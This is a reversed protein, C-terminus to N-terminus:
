RHEPFGQNPFVSNILYMLIAIYTWSSSPVVKMNECHINDMNYPVESKKFGAAFRNQESVQFSSATEMKLIFKSWHFTETDVQVLNLWRSSQLLLNWGFRWFLCGICHWLWSVLIEAYVLCSFACFELKVVRICRDLIWGTGVLM